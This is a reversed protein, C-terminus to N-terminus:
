TFCRPDWPPFDTWFALPPPPVAALPAVQAALESRVAAWESGPPPFPGLGGAGRPGSPPVPSAGGVTVRARNGADAKAAGAPAAEDGPRM